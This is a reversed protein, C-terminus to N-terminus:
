LAFVSVSNKLLIYNFIVLDLERSVASVLGHRGDVVSTCRTRGAEVGLSLGESRM